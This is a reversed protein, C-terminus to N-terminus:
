KSGETSAFVATGSMGPLVNSTPDVIEAILRASQSVPDILGTSQVIRAEHSEGSEDIKVTFSVGERVRGLWASPVMLVLELKSENVIKILPQNPQAIEHIQAAKETVRGDFPAYVTCGSRRAELGRVDAAAKEMEFRAQDVALAGAAKYRQMQRQNEYQAQHAKYAAVAGQHEAHIKSCDFEVILDGQRFRDGERKPLYSIRANIEAGISATEYSRVIVRVGDGPVVGARAESEVARVAQLDGREAHSVVHPPATVAVRTQALAIPNCSFLDPIAVALLALLGVIHRARREDVKAIMTPPELSLPTRADILARSDM